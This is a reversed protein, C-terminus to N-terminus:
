YHLRMQSLCLAQSAPPRILRCIRRLQKTHLSREPPADPFDPYSSRQAGAPYPLDNDTLASTQMSSPIRRYSGKYLSYSCSPYILLIHFYSYLYTILCCGQFLSSNARKRYSICGHKCPYKGFPAVGIIIPHANEIMSDPLFPQKLIMSDDCM